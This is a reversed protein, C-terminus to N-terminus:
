DKIKLSVLGIGLKRTDNNEKDIENPSTPNPPVIELIDEKGNTEFILEYTNKNATLTFTKEIDGVIIKVPVGVNPGYALARIELVFNKPLTERFQLKVTKDVNSDTWRGWSELDSLGKVDKIFYPFGSRTFDIGDRYTSEYRVGLGDVFYGAKIMIEENTLGFLNVVTKQKIEFFVVEGDARTFSPQAGLIKTIDHIVAQGNDSFGRKDVYIGSFGLKMMVDIQKEVSEKSLSRYFLDGGRGKMGMYSFRLTKSNLFGVSLDYDRLRYLPGAEPFPVYPLQYIASGVPLSSEILGIFKRDMNFTNRMQDNCSTCVPTTQDYLGVMLLMLLVSSSAIVYKKNSFNNRIWTQLLLFFIVLSGFGIFISIRNWGRISSTVVHSFISGFGGITGFLVLFLLTLSVAHVVHISQNRRRDFFILGFAILLGISGIVGLSAKQNENVLISETNYKESIKALIANRHDVRPLLLQVFKFGYVESEGPDRHAVEINPGNQYQYIVTPIVNLFVGVIIFTSVFLFQKIKILDYANSIALITVFFLVILGFISYYVGFSGIAILCVAYFIKKLITTNVDKSFDSFYIRFALYWFIPIVFYWTYFLHQIRQFHFPLFNFLISATFAFPPSLGFTRFVFFSFVFTFVFGLLFYLNLVSYWNNLLLGLSKLIFFNGSDSNPYDFFTSDFPYGTRQNNFIWGENLRQIIVSSSLGDNSYTYPYSVNPMLGSPFGSMLISAFIFSFIAGFVWWKWDKLFIEKMSIKFLITDEM